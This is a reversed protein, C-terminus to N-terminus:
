CNCDASAVGEIIFNQEIDKIKAPDLGEIEKLDDASTFDGVDERYRLIKEAFEPGVASNASLEELTASNLNLKEAAFAGPAACFGALALMLVLKKLM